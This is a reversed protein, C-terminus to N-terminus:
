PYVQCNTIRDLMSPCSLVKSSTWPIGPLSIMAGLSPCKLVLFLLSRCKLHPLGEVDPWPCTCSQTHAHAHARIRVCVRHFLCTSLKVYSDLQLVANRWVEVLINEFFLCMVVSLLNQLLLKIRPKTLDKCTLSDYSYWCAVHQWWFPNDGHFLVASSVGHTPWIGLCPWAQGVAWLALLHFSCPISCTCLCTWATTTVYRTQTALYQCWMWRSIKRFSTCGTNSGLPLWSRGPGAQTQHVLLLCLIMKFWPCSPIPQQRVLCNQRYPLGRAVGDEEEQAIKEGLPSVFPLLRGKLIWFILVSIQPQQGKCHTGLFQYIM